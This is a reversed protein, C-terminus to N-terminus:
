QSSIINLSKTEDLVIFRGFKISMPQSIVSFDYSFIQQLSFYFLFILFVVFVSLDESTTPLGKILFVVSSNFRDPKGVPLDGEKGSFLNRFHTSTLTIRVMDETIHQFIWLMLDRYFKFNNLLTIYKRQQSISSEMSEHLMSRLCVMVSWQILYRLASSMVFLLWIQPVLINFIATQLVSIGRKGLMYLIPEVKSVSRQGVPRFILLPWTSM